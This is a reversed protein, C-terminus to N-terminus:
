DKQAAKIAADAKANAKERRAKAREQRMAAKRKANAIEKDLDKFIKM